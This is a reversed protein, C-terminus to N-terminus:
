RDLVEPVSYARRTILTLRGAMSIVSGPQHPSGLGGGVQAATPPQLPPSPTVGNGPEYVGFSGHAERRLDSSSPLNLAEAATLSLLYLLSGSFRDWSSMEPESVSSSALLMKASKASFILCSSSSKFFEGPCPLETSLWIRTESTTKAPPASLYKTAEKLVSNASRM